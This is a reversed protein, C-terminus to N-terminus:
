QLRALRKLGELGNASLSEEIPEHVRQVPLLAIAAHPGSARGTDPTSGALRRKLLKKVPRVNRDCSSIGM